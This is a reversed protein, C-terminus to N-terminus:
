DRFAAGQGGAFDATNCLGPLQPKHLWEHREPGGCIQETFRDAQDM